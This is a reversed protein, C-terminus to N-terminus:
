EIEEGYWLLLGIKELQTLQYESATKRLEYLTDVIEEMVHKTFIKM